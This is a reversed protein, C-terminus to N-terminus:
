SFLKFTRDVNDKAVTKLTDMETKIANREQELAAIDTDFKKDKNNIKRMDAEYKAEAKRLDVDSSVEQLNTDTAVNVDYYNGTNVDFKSLMIFANNIMEALWNSDNERGEILFYNGSEIAKGIEYYHSYGSKGEPSYKLNLSAGDSLGADVNNVIDENPTASMDDLDGFSDAGSIKDTTNYSTCNTVEPYSQSGNNISGIISGEYNCDDTTGKAYIDKDTSYCNDIEIKVNSTKPCVSGVIGGASAGEVTNTAEVSADSCSNEITLNSWSVGVLGGAIGRSATVSGEFSVNSITASINNYASLEDSYWGQGGLIGGVQNGGSINGTVNANSITIQGGNNQGVLGGVYNINVAEIDTNSTVNSINIAAGSQVTDILAGTATSHNEKPRSTVTMGGSLNVNDITTNGTATHALGGKSNNFVLNINKVTAGSLETFVTNNVTSTLTHGNGDLTGQLTGMSETVNIDTMLVKTDTTGAQAKLQAQTFICVKSTDSSLVIKNGSKQCYGSKLCAFEIANGDATTNFYDLDAKSVALVGSTSLKYGAAILNNYTADIFQINGDSGIQKLQIKTKNLADEYEQYVHASENAMQLKQAELKQAKYEIDHMRGTLSLLRAQSSSLGM